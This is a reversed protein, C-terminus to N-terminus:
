GGATFDHPEGERTPQTGTHEQYRRCIVDAYGPDLEILRARRNLRHCAILTSGSGGFPDVVVDLPDTSNTLHLDILEIPKMTPHTTSRKPRPVEHVTTQRRDPPTHHATGPTWGYFIPEHRAHYDMHGMVLVDKSWILVQRLVGLDSLVAGFTLMLPGPPSTVYWVAGERTATLALPLVARLLAEIGEAGDGEITLADKTKGVYSVGYPPDTWVADAVEGALLADWTGVSTSDGVVLRHPGLEWVDGTACHPEAPVDPADDADTAGAEPLEQGALVKELDELDGPDFGTGELDPLEALLELLLRDDYDGLDATRNDAAVIRTAREDDVDVYTAAINRWGLQRAALLTHNGALVELPRGTLTGRNVCITRYQGNVSLSEAIHAVDGRRPNRHFTALRDVEVYEVVLTADTV